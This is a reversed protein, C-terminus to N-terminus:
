IEPKRYHEYMLVSAAVSANLSELEGEMPIRVYEDALDATEEKLGNGENGILFATDAYSIENHYKKGKLHAAYVKIGDAKLEAIRASLDDTYIYPMRYISGMTARVTKPNYIDVCGESLIIGSAGAGEATRFITGLNGPDQIDELVMILRRGDGNSRVGRRLIDKMTYSPTSLICLIGQPTQTDSIRAMQETTIIEHDMWGIMESISLGKDSPNNLCTEKDIHDLFDQTVYVEKVWELPAEMFMKPGEIVFLGAERRAKSKENLKHIEKIKANTLM